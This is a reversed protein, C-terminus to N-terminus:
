FGEPGCHPRGVRSILNKFTLRSDLVQGCVTGSFVSGPRASHRLLVVKPGGWQWLLSRSARDCCVGPFRSRLRRACAGVGPVAPVVLRHGPIPARPWISRLPAGSDLAGTQLLAHALWDPFRVASGHKGSAGHGGWGPLGDRCQFARALTPPTAFRGPGTAPVQPEPV